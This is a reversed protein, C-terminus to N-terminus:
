TLLSHRGQERGERAAFPAAANEGGNDPLPADVETAPVYGQVRTRTKSPDLRDPEDRVVVGVPKGILQGLYMTSLRYGTGEKTVDEDGPRELGLADTM